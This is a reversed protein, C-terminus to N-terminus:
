QRVGGIDCRVAVGKGLVVSPRDRGLACKAPPLARASATRVSAAAISTCCICSSTAIATSCAFWGCFPNPFRQVLRQMAMEQTAIVPSFGLAIFPACAAINYDRLDSSCVDSSWDISRLEYATKQKVVFFFLM